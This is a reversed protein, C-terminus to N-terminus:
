YKSEDRRREKALFQRLRKSARRKARKNHISGKQDNCSSNFCADNDQNITRAIIEKRRMM